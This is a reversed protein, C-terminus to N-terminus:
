TQKGLNVHDAVQVTIDPKELTPALICVGRRVVVGVKEETDNFRFSPLSHIALFSSSGSCARPTWMRHPKVTWCSLWCGPPLCSWLFSTMTTHFRFARVQVSEVHRRCLHASRNRSPKAQISDIYFQSFIKLLYSRIQLGEQVLDETLYRYCIRNFDEEDKVWWNMGPASVERGALKRLLVRTLSLM